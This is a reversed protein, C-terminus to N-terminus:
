VFIFKEFTFYPVTNKPPRRWIIEGLSNKENVRVEQWHNANKLLIAHGPQEESLDVKTEVALPCTAREV